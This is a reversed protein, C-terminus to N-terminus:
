GRKTNLVIAGNIGRRGFLSASMTNHIEVTAVDLPSVSSAAFADVPIGDIVFLPRGNGRLSAGYPTLRLGPVRGQLATLINHYSATQLEDMVVLYDAYSATSSIDSTKVNYAKELASPSYIGSRRGYGDGKAYSASSWWLAALAM